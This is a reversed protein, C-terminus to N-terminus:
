VVSTERCFNSQCGTSLVTRMESVTRDAPAGRVPSDAARTRSPASQYADDLTRLVGSGTAAPYAGRTTVHQGLRPGKLQRNVTSHARPM